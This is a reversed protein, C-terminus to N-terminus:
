VAYDIPLLAFTNGTGPSFGEVVGHYTVQSGYIDVSIHAPQGPRIRALETEKFNAEVWLYDLPVIALLPMGPKVEEGVQVRRKAAYGSVPDVSDHGVYERYTRQLGNQARMVLHHE